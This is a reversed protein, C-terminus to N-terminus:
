LHFLTKGADKYLFVCPTLSFSKVLKPMKLSFHFLAPEM